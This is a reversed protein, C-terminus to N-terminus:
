PSLIRRGAPLSAESLACLHSPPARGEPHVGRKGRVKRGAVLGLLRPVLAGAPCGSRSRLRRSPAGLVRLRPQLHARGPRGMESGRFSAAQARFTGGEALSLYYGGGAVVWRERGREREREGGGEKREGREGEKERLGNEEKERGRGRALMSEEIRTGGGQHETDTGPSITHFPVSEREPEAEEGSTGEQHGLWWGLGQCSSSTSIV